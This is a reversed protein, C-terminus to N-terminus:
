ENSTEDASRPEALVHVRGDGFPLGSSPSSDFHDNVPVRFRLRRRLSPPQVPIPISVEKIVAASNPLWFHIM